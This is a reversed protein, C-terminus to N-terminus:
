GKTGTVKRYWLPHHHKAWAHSVSGRTMARISGKVWLASYLHVIVALILVFASFAHVVAAIRVLTIPFYEAFYPRWMLIGSVILLLLTVVLTWFLLKQGYNYKGIEPLNHDRNNIVDGLRQRWARDYTEIRNEGWFHSALWFFAVFMVVGLFPHLIRAWPGGGLLHGLFWFAPHFFALGSAAMLIFLVVLLWHNARQGPTYRPVEGSRKVIANM